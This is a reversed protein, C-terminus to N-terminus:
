HVANENGAPSEMVEPTILPVGVAAPVNERFKVTVSAARDVVVWVNVNITDDVEPLGVPGTIM